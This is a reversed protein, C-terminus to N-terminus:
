PSTAAGHARWRARAADLRARAEPADHWGEIVLEADDYHGLWTELITRAGPWRADLDELGALDQYGEHGDAPVALLKDDQEGDDRMAIMGLWRCSVVAGRARVPGLVFVDLPDGDGGRTSPVFGYNAPFPLYDITRLRGDRREWRLVGSEDVEWKAHTGAPNEIVVQPRGEADLAPLRHLPTPAVLTEGDRLELGPAIPAGAVLVAGGCGFLLVALVWPRPSLAVTDRTARLPHQWRTM